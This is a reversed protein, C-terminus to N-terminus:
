NTGVAVVTGDSKLGVTFYYGAAVMPTVNGAPVNLAMEATSGSTDLISRVFSCDERLPVTACAGAASAPLVLSFVLVVSFLALLHIKRNKM